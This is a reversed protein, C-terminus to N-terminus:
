NARLDLEKWGRPNAKDEGRKREMEARLRRAVDPYKMSVDYSEDPDVSLDFLWPGKATPVGISMDSLVYMIPQRDHYKFRGDSVAMLREGAYYHGIRSTVDTGGDLVPRLSRGDIARDAPIPITLWDLLTPLLDTGMALAPLQRGGSLQAPWHIFFPVHMGGEFTMGKRGRNPGPSGEYWPGNDSTLIIITNDMQGGKELAAVIEGVGRDLGEIVDGYLGAASRGTDAEPAFLPEHPFNHAFYLLFPQDASAKASIFRAAEGTYLANMQTQDVPSELEVRDNRYLAFPLMDNSYRAGYFSDFGMDNPLSPAADGIHWKGIMGTRYGDAKLVDAITIEEAPIRANRGSMYNTFRQPGETPFVVNPLGARPPYRGTLLAARAPSCVAAASHFNTLVTGAEALADMNPTKIAKSGTFGLDGFGLDDYYLIVINPRGQRPRNPATAVVRQLYERKALLHEADDEQGFTAIRVAAFILAALILLGPILLVLGLRKLWRKM